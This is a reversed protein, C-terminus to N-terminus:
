PRRSAKHVGTRTGSSRRRRDPASLRASRCRTFLGGTEHLASRRCRSIAESCRFDECCLRASGSSSRLFARTICRAPCRCSCRAFWAQWRRVCAPKSRRYIGHGVAAVAALRVHRLVALLGILGFNYLLDIPTSHSTIGYDARFAEVGHGFVPNRPGDWWGRTEGLAAAQRLRQLRRVDDRASLVELGISVRDIGAQVREVVADNSALGYAIAVARARHGRRQTARGQAGPQLLRPRGRGGRAPNWSQDQDVDHGSHSDAPDARAVLDAAAVRTSWGFALASFLGFLYMAAIANYSFDEPYAFPFGKAYTYWAAGLLFGALLGQLVTRLAHFAVLSAPSCWSSCFISPRCWPTGGWCRTRRGCCRLDAHVRRPGCVVRMRPRVASAPVVPCAHVVCRRAGGPAVAFQVLRRLDHEIRAGLRRVGRAALTYVRTVTRALEVVPPRSAELAESM